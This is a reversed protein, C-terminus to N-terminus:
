EIIQIVRRSSPEVLVPRENVITYRYEPVGYEAPVEYYTVGDSPLEAGVVLQGSYAYSPRRQQVVYERFRPRVTEPMNRQQARQVGSSGSEGGAGGGTGTPSTQALAPVSLATVGVALVGARLITSLFDLSM